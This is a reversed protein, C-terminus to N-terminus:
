PPGLFVFKLFQYRHLCPQELRSFRRRVIARQLRLRTLLLTSIEWFLFFVM